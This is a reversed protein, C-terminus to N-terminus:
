VQLIHGTGGRLVHELKWGEFVLEVEDGLAGGLDEGEVGELLADLLGDGGALGHADLSM